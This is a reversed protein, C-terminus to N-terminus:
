LQTQLDSRINQNILLSFSIFKSPRSESESDGDNLIVEFKRLKKKEDIVIDMKILIM